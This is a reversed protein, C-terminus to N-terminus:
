KQVREGKRVTGGLEQWQKFSGYFPTSYGKIANNMGLILRNIGNYEKKSVINKEASSDATWPKVWPAAGNELQQIISDTVEQYITNQM